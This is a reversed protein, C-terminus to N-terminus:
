EDVEKATVADMTAQREIVINEQAACFDTLLQTLRKM